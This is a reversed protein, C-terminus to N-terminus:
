VDELDELKHIAASVFFVLMFFGFGVLFGFFGRSGFGISNVTTVVLIAIVFFLIVLAGVAYYFRMDSGLRERM